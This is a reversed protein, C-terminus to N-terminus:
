EYRSKWEYVVMWVGSKLTIELQEINTVTAGKKSRLYGWCFGCRYYAFEPNLSDIVLQRVGNCQPCDFFINNMVFRGLMGGAMKECLLLKIDGCIKNM